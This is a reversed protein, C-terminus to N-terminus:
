DSLRSYIRKLTELVDEVDPRDDSEKEMMQVILENLETPVEFRFRIPEIPTKDIIQKMIDITTEGVFPKEGTLMEYFMVGMSYIDTAGSFGAGSIQEPAMYNITGIVMGSQTLRTQHQMRALGFDLLKVFNPDSGKKVLMVNDPKMDRHIIGKSHIKAIADTVQSMIYLAELINLREDQSIKDTLTRGELLEMAIFMSQKSEGREFVRVINPHDLQDVIVAEQKFRKRSSEDEFLEEKLVKIAVTQTKDTRNEAKYVTGMGGVGIKDLLKYNGVFKQKKWFGSLAIYKRFFNIVVYSLVSFVSLALLIFWWSLWLPPIVEFAAAAGEENWFDDNNCAIVQFRFNGADLNTYYAVRQAAADVWDEEYGNLLFKFKVKKPNLLSLATYHFEIRKVGPKVTIKQNLDASVGDLLVKEIYVPPPVQNVAIHAPDIMAAGKMTSFWFKGDHTKCGSTQFGGNCESTRMGDDKGYAESRIFATKGEAFDNLDNKSVRFIGKNCSLWFYGKQDEQIYYIDNHFLGDKKSYGTFKGDKFRSLGNATGIWLVSNKDEYIYQISNNVLGHEETYLTFTKDKDNYKTLGDPHASLWLNNNGDRYIVNIHKTPVGEVEVLKTSNKGKKFLGRGTGVWLNGSGDECIALTYHDKYERVKEIKSRSSRLQNLGVDTGVWIFGRSDEYITDVVNNSLGDRTTFRILEGDKLRNLGNNTGIWLYNSRDEFIAFVVDDSLGESVGFTKFKGDRLRNLGGYVTGIWLSGERDEAISFVANDSLGDEKSFHSFIGDKYRFLGQAVTGIWVNKDSDEFITFIRTDPYKANIEAPRIVGNQMMYLGGFTGLWLIKGSDEYVARIYNALDNKDVSYNTFTNNKFLSFGKRTAIWFSGDGRKHIDRVVNEPLGDEVKYVRFTDDKFAYLGGEHTGILIEGDNGEAICHIDEHPSGEKDLFNKFVGNEYLLLGGRRTGLWLRKGSDEYLSCIYNSALAPTNGMDFTVFKVGDFRNVGEETGLWLYGDATQLIAFISNQPLGTEDNWTDIKYQSIARNPDLGALHFPLCWLLLLVGMFGLIGSISKKENAM